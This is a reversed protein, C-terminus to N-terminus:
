LSIAKDESHSDWMAYRQCLSSDYLLEPLSRDGARHSAAVSLIEAVRIILCVVMMHVAQSVTAYYLGFVLSFPFSCSFRPLSTKLAWDDLLRRAPFGPKVNAPRDSDPQMADRRTQRKKWSSLEAGSVPSVLERHRRNNERDAKGTEQGEHVNTVGSPSDIRRATQLPSHEASVSSFERTLTARDFLLEFKALRGFKLFAPYARIEKVGKM